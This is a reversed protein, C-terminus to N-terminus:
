DLSTATITVDSPASETIGDDVVLRIIYNGPHDAIFSTKPKTPNKLKASSAAPRSIIGWNYTIQDLNGDNSESGDLYITDGVAVSQHEGADAVAKINEFGVILVDPDSSHKSNSVILEIVYEGHIDAVFSPTVSNPESLSAISRDPKGVITWSHLLPEGYPDYSKSGDLKVTTGIEIINKEKGAYAVPLNPPNMIKNYAYIYRPDIEIVKNSDSIHRSNDHLFQLIKEKMRPQLHASHSTTDVVISESNPRFLM